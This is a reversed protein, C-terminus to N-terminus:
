SPPTEQVEVFSAELVETDNPFSDTDESNPEFNPGDTLSLTSGEERGNEPVYILVQAGASAQVNVQPNMVKNGYTEPDRRELLWAAAKWDKDGHETIKQVLSQNYAAQLGRVCLAFTRYPEEATDSFDKGKNHAPDGGRRM